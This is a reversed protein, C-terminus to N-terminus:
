NGSTRNQCLSTLRQLAGQLCKSFFKKFEQNFVTYIIPNLASNVYGLWTTTSILEVPVHCSVCLARTTHVVFFPTWCFLFCGVVVPLVRMAKRERHNIKASKKPSYEVTPVSKERYRRPYPLETQTYDGSVDMRCQALDREVIWPLPLPSPGPSPVPLPTNIDQTEHNHHQLERCAQISVKLRHKRDHEWRRLGRVVGWYLLLMLPCPVFFSCVSSYVVYNDDELRCESPDREVVDNVGFMVPSAVALALLWPACLLVLQRQDVQRRSYNLPVSVAIFRDVSIACLNFISATCLMVDMSMLFDCLVLNLTWIGGQFQPSLCPVCGGRVEVRNLVKPPDELLLDILVPPLECGFLLEPLSNQCGAFF